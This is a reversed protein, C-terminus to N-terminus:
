GSLSIRRWPQCRRKLEARQIKSNHRNDVPLAPLIHIPCRPLQHAMLIHRAAHSAADATAHPEPELFLHPTEGPRTQILASRRIAPHEDLQREVPFVPIQQGRLELCEKTRGVLHLGGDGDQWALDGTRHWVHGDVGPIKSEATAEPNDVYGKLVHPGKVWVEGTEGAPVTAALLEAESQPRSDPDALVVRAIPSPTGVPYGPGTDTELLRAPGHAIPEAETSGYVVAVDAEPFARQLRRALKANVPAGGVRITRITRCGGVADAADALRGLFAGAGSLRTVGCAEIQELIRTGPARAPARFDMDPLVSPMGCCLNHLVLVPLCTMDVDISTDPWDARIAQHQAILSAHNRDAGKPRGTTGSTYSILGPAGPPRHVCPGTPGHAPLQDLAPLALWPRALRDLLRGPFCLRPPALVAKARSEALAELVKRRGMGTDLFVPVLGEALLGLVAVYLAPEPPHIVVIRDNQKWGQQRCWARFRAIAQGLEGFSLTRLRHGADPWILASVWPQVRSHRLVLEVFNGNDPTISPLIAHM